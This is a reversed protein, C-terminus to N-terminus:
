DKFEFYRNWDSAGNQQQSVQLHGAVVETKQIDSSFQEFSQLMNSVAASKFNSVQDMTERVRQFAQSLKELEKQSADAANNVDKARHNLFGASQEVIRGAGRNFKNVAEIVLKQKTLTAAVMVATQLASVTTTCARAIGKDLQLNNQRILDIAQFGQLSIAQQTLLDERKQRVSFLIEQSLVRAREADSSELKVLQGSLTNDIQEFIYSYRRLDQIAQWLNHKEQEIYANEKKVEDQSRLLASVIQNLSARSAQYKSFYWNLKSGVPIIGLWKKLAFLDGYNAPDLEDIASQLQSLTSGIFGSEAISGESMVRVPKDMLRGTVKAAHQIERNGLNHITHLIAQYRDEHPSLELTDRVFNRIQQDLQKQKEASIQVLQDSESPAISAVVKAPELDSSIQSHTM